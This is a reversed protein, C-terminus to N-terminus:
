VCVRVCSRPHIGTSREGGGNCLRDQHVLVTDSCCEVSSNYLGLDGPIMFEGLTDGLPPEEREREGREGGGGM